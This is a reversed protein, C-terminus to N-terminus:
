KDYISGFEKNCYKKILKPYNNLIKIKYKIKIESSLDDRSGTHRRYFYLPKNIHVGKFGLDLMRLWLDWDEFAELDRFGGSKDFARKKILAGACIYNGNEVLHKPNFDISKFVRNEDGFLKMDTYSYYKLPKRRLANLCTQVYTSAIRDDADLFIIYKGRAIKAGNNRAKAVGSNKQYHYNVSNKNYKLAIQGTDDTSGDDVVIIEINDYTQDITSKIAEELYEGYNYSTIVVSILPKYRNM